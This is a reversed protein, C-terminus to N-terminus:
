HIRQLMNAELEFNFQLSLPYSMHTPSLATEYNDAEKQVLHCCQGDMQNLHGVCLLGLFGAHQHNNGEHGLLTQLLLQGCSFTEYDIKGVILVGHVIKKTPSSLVVNCSSCYVKSSTMCLKPMYGVVSGKIM